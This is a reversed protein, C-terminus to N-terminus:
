KENSYKIIKNLTEVSLVTGSDGTNEKLGANKANKLIERNADADVNQINKAGNNLEQYLSAVNRSRSGGNDIELYSSVINNFHVLQKLDDARSAIENRISALKTQDPTSVSNDKVSTHNEIKQAMDDIIAQRENKYRNAIELKVEDLSKKDKTMVSIKSDDYGEQKLYKVVEDKNSLKDNLTEELAYQRLAFEAMNKEKETSDTSIFKKCTESDVIKDNDDLCKKMEKNLDDNKKQYSSEVESSSLTTTADNNNKDTITVKRVNKIEIGAVSRNAKDNFFKSIEETAILNKRASKVYDMILCAKTKSRSMQDKNEGFESEAAYCVSSISGICQSWKASDTNVNKDTSNTLNASKLSKVNEAINNKSESEDKGILCLKCAMPNNNSDTCKKENSDICDLGNSTPAVELCYSTFSSVITKGLETKYLENFKAHDVLAVSKSDKQAKEDGYLAEDLKKQFVKSLEIVAPDSMYDAGLQKSKSTLNLTGSGQPSAPSRSTNGTQSLKTEEQAYLNKVEKRDDASLPAIGKASDGDWLCKSIASLDNQLKSKCDQYQKNVGSITLIKELAGSNNGDQKIENYVEAKTACFATSSILLTFSLISSYIPKMM